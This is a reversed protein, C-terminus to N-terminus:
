LQAIFYKQLLYINVLFFIMQSRDSKNRNNNYSIPFVVCFKLNKSIQFRSIELSLQFFPLFMRMPSGTGFFQVFQPLFTLKRNDTIDKRHAKKSESFISHLSLITIMYFNLKSIKVHKYM